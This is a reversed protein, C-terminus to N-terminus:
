IGRFTISICNETKCYVTYSNRKEEVAIENGCRPCVVNTKNKEFLEKDAKKLVEIEEKTLKTGM